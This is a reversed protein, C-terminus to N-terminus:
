LVVHQLGPYALRRPLAGVGPAGDAAQRAVARDRPGAPARPATRRSGRPTGRHRLRGQDLGPRPADELPPRLASEATRAARRPGSLARLLAGAGRRRRAPGAM